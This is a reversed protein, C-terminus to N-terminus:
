YKFLLCLAPSILPRM